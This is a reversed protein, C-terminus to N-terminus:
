CGGHFDTCCPEILDKAEGDDVESGLVLDVGVVFCQGLYIFVVGAEMVVTVREDFVVGGDVNLGQFDLNEIAMFGLSVNTEIHCKKSLSRVGCCPGYRNLLDNSNNM